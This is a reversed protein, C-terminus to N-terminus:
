RRWRCRTSSSRAPRAHPVRNAHVDGRRDECLQMIPASTRPPCSSTSASSRSASSRSRAPTPCRRRTTLHALTEGKRTLIEYTVNPATQVLDLDSERELRQQIIEIHLMGLFGCRFGFGLGDRTEPEFTFSSDNLALKGLAERLDEFDNNDVPYLGCYVM